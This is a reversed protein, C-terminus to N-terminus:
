LGLKKAAQEPTIGAEKAKAIIDKYTIAPETLSRKKEELDIIEQKKKAIMDDIRKLREEKTINAM